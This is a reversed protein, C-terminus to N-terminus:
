LLCDAAAAINPREVVGGYGIFMEAGGPQRAELDTAGDGVMILPSYGHQAKIVRIAEAKGGSRSTFEEADFGAYSGQDDDQHLITNAYVNTLPIGLMDAIPNIIVRFGGSVLYVATGRQQLLQVLEPIGPSLRPPHAALFAIVKQRSPQMLELRMALADQFKVTGGMANATLAAVADGVGLFAALEDISEDECLTSDVDFCVAQARRWTELVLKSAERNSVAAAATKVLRQRSSM